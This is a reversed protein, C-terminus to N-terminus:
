DESDLWDRDEKSLNNRLLIIDKNENFFQQESKDLKLGKSRKLRIDKVQSFVCDGGIEMYAGVFSWWHLYEVARVEYGLVRNIAPVILNFDQEWDMLKPQPKSDRKDEGCAIFKSMEDIAANANEPIIFTKEKKNYGYFACLAYYSKEQQSLANDNLISIVDLIMRYDGKQNIQYTKDDIIVTTPLEYNVM